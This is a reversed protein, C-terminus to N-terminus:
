EIQGRIEGGPNVETHVNAYTNGSLLANVADEFSEIDTNPILDAFGLTNELPENLPAQPCALPVPRGQPANGLNTCLFLLIDGNVGVPAGHIHAQTVDLIDAYELTFTIQTQTNNLRLTASGSAETEVPPVEQSGRLVSQLVAAGLQGRIEGAPNGVTHANVYTNGNLIAQVAGAFDAIGGAPILNDATLTGRITGDGRFCAPPIPVGDPPQLNTCLFFIIPGNVGTGGVHIHAQTFDTPADSYQLTYLIETRDENFTLAAFGNTDTVVPVPVEQTGRLTALIEIPPNESEGAPDSASEQDTDENVLALRNRPDIFVEFSVEDNVRFPLGAAIHLFRLLLPSQLTAVGTAVQGNSTLRFPAVGSVDFTAFELIVEEDELDEDFAEGDSIVFRRNELDAATADKFEDGVKKDGNCGLALFAFLGIILWLGFFKKQFM